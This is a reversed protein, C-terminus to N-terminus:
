QAESNMLENINSIQANVLGGKIKPIVSKAGTAIVLSDYNFVMLNNSYSKSKSIDNDDNNNSDTRNQM